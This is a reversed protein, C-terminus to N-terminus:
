ALLHSAVALYEQRVTGASAERGARGYWYAANSHDGEERHLVAHVWAEEASDGQVADHAADWEGRLAHWCGLLPGTLEDGPAPQGLSDLFRQVRADLQM